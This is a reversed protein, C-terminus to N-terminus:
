KYILTFTSKSNGFFYNFKKKWNKKGTKKLNKNM